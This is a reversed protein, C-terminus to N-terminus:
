LNYAFWCRIWDMKLICTSVVKLERAQAESLGPPLPAPAPPLDFSRPYMQDSINTFLHVFTAFLGELSRYTSAQTRPPRRVGVGGWPPRSLRMCRGPLLQPCDLREIKDADEV